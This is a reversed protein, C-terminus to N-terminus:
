SNYIKKLKERYAMEADYEIKLQHVIEQLKIYETALLNVSNMYPEIKKLELQTLFEQKEKEKKINTFRSEKAIKILELPHVYM